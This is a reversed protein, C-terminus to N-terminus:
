KDLGLCKLLHSFDNQAAGSSASSFRSLALNSSDRYWAVKAEVQTTQINVHDLWRLQM